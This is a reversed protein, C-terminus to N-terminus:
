ESGVLEKLFEIERRREQSRIEVIEQNYRRSYTKPKKCGLKEFCFCIRDIKPNCRNRSDEKKAKKKFHDERGVEL